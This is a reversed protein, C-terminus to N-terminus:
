REAPQLETAKVIQLPFTESWTALPNSYYDPQSISVNIAFNIVASPDSYHVLFKFYNVFQLTMSGVTTCWTENYVPTIKFLSQITNAGANDQQYGQFWQINPNQGSTFNFYYTPTFNTGVGGPETTMFLNLNPDSSPLGVAVSDGGTWYAPSTTGIQVDGAPFASGDGQLVQISTTYNFGLCDNQDFSLVLPVGPTINNLTAVVVVLYSEVGAQHSGNSNYCFFNLTPSVSIPINYPQLVFDAEVQYAAIVQSM